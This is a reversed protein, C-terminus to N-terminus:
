TCWHSKYVTATVTIQTIMATKLNLARLIYMCMYQIMHGVICCSLYVEPIIAKKCSERWAASPNPSEQDM